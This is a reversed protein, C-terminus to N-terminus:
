AYALSRKKRAAALNIDLNRDITEWFRAVADNRDKWAIDGLDSITKQRAKAWRGQINQMEQMRAAGRMPGVQLEHLEIAKSMRARRDRMLDRQYTLQRAKPQLKRKEEALALLREFAGRDQLGVDLLANLCALQGGYVMPHTDWTEIIRTMENALSAYNPADILTNVAAVVRSTAM